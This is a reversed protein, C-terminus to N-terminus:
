KRVITEGLPVPAIVSKAGNPKAGNPVTNVIKQFDAVYTVIKTKHYENVLTVRIQEGIKAEQHLRVFLDKDLVSVQQTFHRKIGTRGTVCDVLNIKPPDGPVIGVLQSTTTVEETKLATEM